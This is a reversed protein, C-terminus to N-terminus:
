KAVHTLFQLVRRPSRLVHLDAGSAHTAIQDMIPPLSRRRYNWVWRWFEANERSRRAARLACRWFSFDLIIVTDAAKLRVDLVDYHALDGDLIWREPTVLEGQIAAWRRTPTPELGRQWFHTDLETVPIGTLAGLRTAFTSKGAGGRGLVVVRM